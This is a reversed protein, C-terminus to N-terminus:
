QLAHTAIATFEAAADHWSRARVAAAAARTRAALADRDRVLALFAGALAREDGVLAGGAAPEVHAATNGGARALVPVGLARAEALAMGYSEMRSASLLLDAAQLVNLAEMHPLPGLLEVCARLGPESAILARCREIYRPDGGGAIRVVFRDGDRIRPALHELWPLVGKGEVLNCLM